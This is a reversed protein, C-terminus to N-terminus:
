HLQSWDTYGALAAPIASVVGTAVLVKAARQQGPVLDVVTASLWAGIPVQVAVPHLPHGLPVGHLVDRLWQPRVVTDVANRLRTAVPDLASANELRDILSFPPQPKM